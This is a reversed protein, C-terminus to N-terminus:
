KIGFLPRIWTIRRLVFEYLFLSIGFTGALLIILKVFAPIPLPLVLYYALWFQVPLHIIYVPYVAKGFFDLSQSPRNLHRSGFGLIALMWSTSEFAIIQNPTGDLQFILLRILFLACAAGLAYWRLREAADWSLENMSAFAFGTFFCIAGLMFGHPTNKYLAYMDPNVLWAELIIPLALLFLGPPRRFIGSLIRFLVNDPRKKLSNLFPLFLLVYLFINLLFWLHGSNPVYTVEQGLVQLVIYALLPNIFFFGFVFPILIRVTRDKLLQKWNRREMAFRVGMGSVLFLVPIRWVNIMAMFIWLWQLTEENQPFSSSKAWPQFCIVVHYVILLALALTRLWDVDHRRSRNAVEPIDTKGSKM